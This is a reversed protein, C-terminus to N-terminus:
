IKERYPRVVHADRCDGLLESITKQLAPHRVDPAIESLPVLIFRRQHLRPHPIILRETNQVRDDYLLIDLDINRAGWHVDRKRGMQDEIALLRDLLSDPDLTTQIEIVLNLFWRQDQPGVPQTEYVSSRKSISIEESGTLRDLAEKLFGLRNGLNSGLSVYATSV